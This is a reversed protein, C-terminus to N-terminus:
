TTRIASLLDIVKTIHGSSNPTGDVNYVTLLQPFHYMQLEHSWVFEVDILEGTAGTDRLAKMAMLHNGDVM